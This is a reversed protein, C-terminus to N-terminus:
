RWGYRYEFDPRSVALWKEFFNTADSVISNPGLGRPSVVSARPVEIPPAIPEIEHEVDNVVVFAGDLRDGAVMQDRCKAARFGVEILLLM